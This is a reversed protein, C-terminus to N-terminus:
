KDAAVLGRVFFRQMAIMVLLPPLMVLLTGAMAIQWEPM